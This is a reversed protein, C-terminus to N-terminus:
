PTTIVAPRRKDYEVQMTKLFEQYKDQTIRGSSVLVATNEQLEKQTFDLNREKLLRGIVLDLELLSRQYRILNDLAAIKARFVDEEAELVDRSSIKGADLRTLQTKLVDENVRVVKGHRDVNNRYSEVSFVSSRLTNALTIGLGNLARLTAERRLEAAKLEHRSKTGGGMPVRLELGLSWSPFDQEYAADWSAGPNNGLGSFGYGGKLDLNPMRQNKAVKVRLGELEAQKVLSGYSPNLEYAALTMQTVDFNHDAVKPADAALMGFANPSWSDSLMTAARSRASSLRQEAENLIATREAVGAEAQLVDIEAAKGLEVRKKNDTLLTEAVRLSEKAIKAQEQTQYLDWYAAEAQSVVEMINKRYDQFSIESSIAAARIGAMTVTVGGNKLLPQTVALGVTSVWEGNPNGVFNINNELSQLTYGLRVKAGTPALTEFASSYTKNRENYINPGGGFLGGLNARQEATNPRRRDVADLGGVYEPEFIGKEAKYREDSIVSELIRIQLSENRTWVQKLFEELKIPAGAVENTAANLHWGCLILTCIVLARRIFGRVSQLANISNVKKTM